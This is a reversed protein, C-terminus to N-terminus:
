NSQTGHGRLDASMPMDPLRMGVCVLAHCGKSQCASCLLCPLAPRRARWSMVLDGFIACRRRPAMRRREVRLIARAFVRHLGTVCWRPVGFAMDQRRKRSAPRTKGLYLGSHCKTAVPMAKADGMERPRGRIVGAIGEFRMGTRGNLLERVVVGPRRRITAQRANHNKGGLVRRDERRMRRAFRRLTLSKEIDGRVRHFRGRRCM